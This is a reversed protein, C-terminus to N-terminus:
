GAQEHLDDVITGRVFTPMVWKLIYIREGKRPGTWYGHWHGKRIHAKRATFNHGESATIAKGLEEYVEYEIINPRPNLAYQGLIAPRPLRKVMNVKKEVQTRYETNVFLISSICDLFSENTGLSDASDSYFRVGFYKSDDELKLADTAKLSEGITPQDLDLLWYILIPSHGMHTPRSVMTILFLDKGGYNVMSYYIGLARYSREETIPSTMDHDTDLGIFTCWQPCNRLPDTPIDLLAETGENWLQKPLRYVVKNLSWFFYQQFHAFYFDTPTEEKKEEMIREIRRRYENNKLQENPSITARGDPSPKPLYSMDAVSPALSGSDLIDAVTGRRLIQTIQGTKALKHKEVSGFVSKDLGLNNCAVWSFFEEFKIGYGPLKGKSLKLKENLKDLMKTRKISVRMDTYPAVGLFSSM